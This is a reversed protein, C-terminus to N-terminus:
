VTEHQWAGLAHALAPGGLNGSRRWALVATRRGAYALRDAGPGTLAWATWRRSPPTGCDGCSRYWYRPSLVPHSARDTCTATSPAESPSRRSSSLHLPPVRRPVQGGDRGAGTRRRASRHGPPNGRTGIGHRRGRRRDARGRVEPGRPHLEVTSCLRGLGHRSRGRAVMRGTVLQRRGIGPIWLADADARSHGGAPHRTSRV